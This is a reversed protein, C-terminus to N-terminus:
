LQKIYTLANQKDVALQKKLAELSSFKEEARLRKLFALQIKQGYLDESFDFLHAEIKLNDSEPQNALNSAAQPTKAASGQTTGQTPGQTTGQTSGQDKAQTVTQATEQIHKVTPNQGINLMGFVEKDKWITKVIYVGTKPIMKQKFDVSINATPFGIERGIKKGSGVGGCLTYQHGLYSNAKEIDGSALAKRIKTSSVTIADIERASIESVEFDHRLGYKKLDEINASRNRGFRHDYGILITKAHLGQVLIESVFDQAHMRSFEKTFPHIVLYDVGLAALKQAREELSQLMKISSDQQLVMRPHPFFTLVVSPVGLDKAKAVLQEIIRQHGLHVGDFTGITVATKINQSFAPLSHTTIM